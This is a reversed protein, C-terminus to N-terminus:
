LEAPSKARGSWRQTFFVEEVKDTVWDAAAMGASSGVTHLMLATEPEVPMTISFSYPVTIKQQWNDYALPRFIFEFALGNNQIDLLDVPHRYGPASRVGHWFGNYIHRIPNM